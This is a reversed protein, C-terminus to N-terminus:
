KKKKRNRKVAFYREYNYLYFIFSSLYEGGNKELINDLLENIKPMKEEIEKYSSYSLYEFDNVNKKLLFIDIWDRFTLNLISMLVENNKEEELISGIIQTNADEPSNSFKSSVNKSLLVKLPEKLYKIEEDKKINNIYKNYDLDKLKLNKIVLFNNVFIKANEFLKSKIKKIINDPSFKNHDRKSEDDTKKRGCGYKKKNDFVIGEFNNENRKRKKKIFQLSNEASEIRSDKNLYSQINSFNITKSNQLIEKINEFSYFCKEDEGSNGFFPESFDKHITQIATTKEDLPCITLKPENDKKYFTGTKFPAEDEESNYLFGEENEFSSFFPPYILGNEARFNDQFFPYLM